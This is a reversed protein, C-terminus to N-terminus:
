RRTREAIIQHLEPSAGFLEALTGLSAQVHAEDGLGIGRRELEAIMGRVSVGARRAAEGLNLEGAGYDHIAQELRYRALGELILKRMLTGEPLHERRSIGELLATEEASLRVSKTVLKTGGRSM